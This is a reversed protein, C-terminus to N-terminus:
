YQSKWETVLVTCTGSNAIGQVANQIVPTNPYDGFEATTTSHVAFGNGATAPADGVNTKLYVVSGAATCNVPQITAALRRTGTSTALLRQSTTTLTFTTSSAVQFTPATQYAVAAGQVSRPEVDVQFLVFAGIAMLVAGIGTVVLTIIKKM